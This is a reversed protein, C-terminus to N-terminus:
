KNAQSEISELQLQRCAKFLALKNGDSQGNILNVVDNDTLVGKAKIVYYFEGEKKIKIESDVLIEHPNHKAPINRLESPAIVPQESINAIFDGNAFKQHEKEIRKETDRYALWYGTHKVHVYAVILFIIAFPLYLSIHNFLGLVVIGIIKLFAILIIGTQFFFDAMKGKEIKSNLSAIAQKQSDDKLLRKSKIICKDAENRHLWKAFVVDLVIFLAVALIALVMFIGGSKMGGYVTAALGLLEGFMAIFVWTTDASNGNDIFFGPVSFGGVTIEPKRTGLWNKLTEASPQFDSKDPIHM